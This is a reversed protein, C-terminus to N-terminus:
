ARWGCAGRRSLATSPTIGATSGPTSLLEDVTQGADEVYDAVRAGVSKVGKSVGGKAVPVGPPSPIRCSSSLLAWPM